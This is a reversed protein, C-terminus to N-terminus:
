QGTIKKKQLTEPKPVLTITADYFLKPLTREEKTKQFLTLLIAMLEKYLQYSEGTFGELGPSKNSATKSIESKTENRTILRNFNDKEEQIM